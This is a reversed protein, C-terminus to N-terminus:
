SCDAQTHKSGFVPHGPMPRSIARVYVPRGALVGFVAAALTVAVFLFGMATWDGTREHMLGVALPGAAALTLGVSQVMGSLHAAVHMDRARLVILTLAVSFTGGQGFGLLMAWLWVSGLPAYLCGLLGALTLSLMALAVGGQHRCRGAIVPATLATVLQAMIACSAVMGAVTPDSGRDRLIPALWSFVIFALSSQLGMFLTVQWALPDRWVGHVEWPDPARGVSACRVQPLWVMAAVLVPLAWFALAWSWGGFVHGLPATTGAAIAGGGCLAATYIGTMSATHEPFDRKVLGPLLTGIIGMGAGAILAAAFQAVSNPVCRLGIGLALIFLVRFITREAGWRRALASGALGFLGLCVVPGTTLWSASAESMGTDRVVEALVPGLSSLAPRLNFAILM